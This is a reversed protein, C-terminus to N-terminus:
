LTLKKSINMLVILVMVQRHWVLGHDAIYWAPYRFIAIGSQRLQCRRSASAPSVKKWISCSALIGIDATDAEVGICLKLFKM